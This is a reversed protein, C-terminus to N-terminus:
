KGMPILPAKRSILDAMERPTSATFISSVALGCAFEKNLQNIAKTARLSEGGLDFFSENLGVSEVGLIMKWISVIKQELPNDSPEADQKATENSTRHVPPLARRDVKGNPSIPFANLFQVFSPVAHAPLMERVRSLVERESVDARAPIVYAVLTKSGDNEIQIKVVVDRVDALSRFANEIDGLEVRFGRIKIQDDNRGLFEIDGSRLLRVRDGTKYMRADGRIAFPDPLFVASTLDPKNLYGLSLGDGAAYLDGPVGAPAPKLNADLIYVKTNRIPKGIPISRQETIERPIKYCCTFTTNETPGYGNILQTEPLAELAKRVHMPSLADGGALLQRVGRLIQVDQDVITNFLAATLWLVSVKHKALVAGFQEVSEFEAPYVALTAGNLLPAWIELTSADFSIPAFALFTDEESITIFSNNKVLRVIARHPVIVGKPVGTSGSTYMVYAPALPDCNDPLMTPPALQKELLSGVTITRISAPAITRGAEDAVLLRVQSDEFMQKLRVAPYAADFPVFAAGAKFIALISIILEPSRKISVGVLDGRQVGAAKLATAARHSLRDVEGYTLTQDGFRIAVREPHAKATKAFLADVTENKPYDADTENLRRSLERDEDTLIDIERAHVSPNASVQRLISEYAAAFREVSSREFLDTDFEFEIARDSQKGGISVNLDFKSTGNHVHVPRCALGDLTLTLLEPHHQFVVRSLASRAGDFRPKTLQLIDRFSVSLHSLADITAAKTREVVDAFSDSPQVTCALPLLCSRYCVQEYDEPDIRSSFPTGIPFTEEGTFRFVFLEFAALFVTYTSVKLKRALQSIQQYLDESLATQVFDGSYTPTLPRSKDIPLQFDPSCHELRHRWYRADELRPLERPACGLETGRSPNAATLSSNQEAYEKSLDRCIAGLASMDGFLHHLQLILLHEGEGTRVLDARFPPGSQLNVPATLLRQIQDRREIETKGAADHQKLSFSSATTTASLRFRPESGEITVESRLTEHKEVVIRLAQQLRPIDINGVIQFGVPMSYVPVEGAIQQATYIDLEPGSLKFTQQHGLENM